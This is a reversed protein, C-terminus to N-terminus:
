LYKEVGERRPKLYFSFIKALLKNEIEYLKKLEDPLTLEELEGQKYMYINSEVLLELERARSILDGIDVDLEPDIARVLATIIMLRQSLDMYPYSRFLSEILTNIPNRFSM